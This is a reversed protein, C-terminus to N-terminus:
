RVVTGSASPTWSSFDRLWKKVTRIEWYHAERIFQPEGAVDLIGSSDWHHGGSVILYEPHSDSSVRPAPAQNAHYCGDLWVDHEGDIFALRDASFNYGGYANWLSVDPTSPISNYEGPAFALTCMEQTYSGDMVRSLLTPGTRPAAQYLGGELCSTYLYARTTDDM